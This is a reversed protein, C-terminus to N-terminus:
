VVRARQAAREAEEHEAASRGEDMERTPANNPQRKDSSAHERQGKDTNSGENANTEPLDIGEVPVQSVEVPDPPLFRPKHM